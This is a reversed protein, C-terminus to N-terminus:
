QKPQKFEKETIHLGRAALGRVTRGIWSYSYGSLSQEGATCPHQNYLARHWLQCM